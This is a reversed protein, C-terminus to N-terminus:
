SPRHVTSIPTNRTQITPSNTVILLTSQIISIYRKILNTSKEDIFYTGFKSTLVNKSDIIKGGTNYYAMQDERNFYLTDSQLSTDKLMRVNGMSKLLRSNGNYSISNSWLKLTDGQELYINGEAYIRNEDAYLFAQDCWM